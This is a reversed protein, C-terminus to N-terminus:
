PFIGISQTLVTGTVVNSNDQLLLLFQENRLVSLHVVNGYVFIIILQLKETVGSATQGYSSEYVVHQLDDAVISETNRYIIFVDNLRSIIENHLNL